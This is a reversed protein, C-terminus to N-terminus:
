IFFYLYVSFVFNYKKGISDVILNSDNYSDVILVKIKYTNADDLYIVNHKIITPIANVHNNQPM